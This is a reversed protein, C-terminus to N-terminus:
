GGCRPAAAACGQSGAGRGWRGLVKCCRRRRGGFSGVAGASFTVFKIYPLAWPTRVSTLAHIVPPEDAGPSPTATSSTIVSMRNLDLLRICGDNCGVYLLADNGACFELCNIGEISVQVHSSSLVQGSLRLTFQNIFHLLAWLVASASVISGGWEGWWWSSVKGGVGRLVRIREINRCCSRAHPARCGRVQRLINCFFVTPLAHRM